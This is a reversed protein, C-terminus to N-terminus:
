PSATLELRGEMGGGLHPTCYFRYRGPPLGALPVKLTEGRDILMEPVVLFRADAGLNRALVDRAGAPISDPDFAVNHPGGSVLEFRLTDAPTAVARTPPFRAGTMQVLVVTGTPPVERRTAASAVATLAGGLALARLTRRISMHPLSEDSAIWRRSRGDSSPRPM